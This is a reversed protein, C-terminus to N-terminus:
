RAIITPLVRVHTWHAYCPLALLKFLHRALAYYFEYFFYRIVVIGGALRSGTIM